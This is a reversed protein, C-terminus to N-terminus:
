FMNRSSVYLAVSLGYLGAFILRTMAATTDYPWGFISFIQNFSQDETPFDPTSVRRMPHLWLPLDFAAMMEFLPMFEESSIPKGKVSPYIQVGKFGLTKIARETEKLAADMNNLPLNAIAAVYKKPYKGMLEAIEDNCIRALEAAEDPSFVEELPPHTPSLVQVYDAYKDILELRMNQNTLTPRKDQINKDTVFRDSYKYIAKKYKELQVHSFVDIQM